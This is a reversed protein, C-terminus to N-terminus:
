PLDEWRSDKANWVEVAGMNDKVREDRVTPLTDSYTTATMGYKIQEDATKGMQKATSGAFEYTKKTMEARIAAPDGSKVAAFLRKYAETPTDGNAGNQAKDSCSLAAAVLALLTCLLFIRNM